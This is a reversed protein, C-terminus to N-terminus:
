KQRIDHRRRKVETGTGISGRLLRLRDPVKLIVPEIKTYLL